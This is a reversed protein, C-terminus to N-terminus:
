VVGLRKGAFAILPALGSILAECGAIDLSLPGDCRAREPEPHVEVMIGDAGPMVAARAMPGVLERRGTSHSPDVVLPLHTLTKLAAVAAPDLTNRTYTEFTRTGRECLIVDRNRGKFVYEAASLVEETTASLGRELVVPKGMRGLEDLMVLEQRNGAGFQLVDAWEAVTEADRADLVM